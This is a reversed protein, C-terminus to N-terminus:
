SAAPTLAEETPLGLSPLCTLWLCSGWGTLPRNRLVDTTISVRQAFTKKEM